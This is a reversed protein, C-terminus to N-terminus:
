NEILLAVLFSGVRAAVMTFAILLVITLVLGQNGYKRYLTLQERLIEKKKETPALGFYILNEILLLFFMYLLPCFLIPFVSLLRIDHYRSSEANELNRWLYKSYPLRFCNYIEFVVPVMIQALHSYQRSKSPDDAFTISEIIMFITLIAIFVTEFWPNTTSERGYESFKDKFVGSLVGLVVLIVIVAIKDSM